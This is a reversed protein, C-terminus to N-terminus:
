RWNGWEQAMRCMKDLYEESHGTIIVKAHFRFKTKANLIQGWGIELNIACSRDINVRLELYIPSKQGRGLM